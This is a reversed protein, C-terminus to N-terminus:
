SPSKPFLLPFLLFFFLLSFLLYFLLFLFFPIRFLLFAIRRLSSAGERCTAVPGYAPNGALKNYVINVNLM